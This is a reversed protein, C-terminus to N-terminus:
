SRAAVLCFYLLPRRRVVARRGVVCGDRCGHCGWLLHSPLCHDVFISFIVILVVINVIIIHLHTSLHHAASTVRRLLLLLLLPSSRSVSDEEFLPSNPDSLFFSRQLFTMYLYQAFTAM